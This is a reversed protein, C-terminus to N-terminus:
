GEELYKMAAVRTIVRRWAEERGAPTGDHPEFISVAGISAIVYEGAVLGNRWWVNIELDSVLQAADESKILPNWVIYVQDGTGHSIGTGWSTAEVYRPSELGLYRAAM